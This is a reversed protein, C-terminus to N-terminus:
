ASKPLKVAISTGDEIHVLDYGSAFPEIGYGRPTNRKSHNHPEVRVGALRLYPNAVREITPYNQWQVMIMRDGTPSLVPVPPSPARMVELINTPPRNYGSSTMGAESM